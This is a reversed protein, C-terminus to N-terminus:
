PGFFFSTCKGVINGHPVIDLRYEHCIGALFAKILRALLALRVRSAEAGCSSVAARLSAMSVSGSSWISIWSHVDVRLINIEFNLEILFAASTWPMSWLCRFFNCDSILAFRFRVAKENQLSHVAYPTKRGLQFGCWQFFIVLASWDLVCGINRMNLM